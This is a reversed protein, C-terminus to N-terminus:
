RRKSAFAVSSLSHLFHGMAHFVPLLFLVEVFESREM